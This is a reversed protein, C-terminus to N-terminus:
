IAVKTVNQKNNQSACIQDLDRLLRNATDWSYISTGAAHLHGGGFYKKAIGSVPIEKSRIRVRIQDPEEVFFAWIKIGETDSFGNVLQFAEGATVNYKKLVATSLKIYGLGYASMKFSELIYGYLRMVNLKVKYLQENLKKISFGYSRLNYAIQFSRETTNDYLFRGTDGVIGAYLLRAANKTMKFGRNIGTEYLEYIMESVSSATTDTWILEGYPDDNPHHDIKIIYDGKKYRKDSIRPKDATDCIIVLAKNYIIDPIHDMRKLFMLMRDEDGVVYIRKEPYTTKLIEWLGGQSGLADADPRVHRHIVITDYQEIVDIIKKKIGIGM